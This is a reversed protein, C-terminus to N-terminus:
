AARVNGAVADTLDGDKKILGSASDHAQTYRGVMQQLTTQGQSSDASLNESKGQADELWTDIAGRSVTWPQGGGPKTIDKDLINVGIAKLANVLRESDAASTGLPGTTANDAPTGDDKTLRRYKRVEASLDTIKKIEHTIDALRDKVLALADGLVFGLKGQMASLDSLVDGTNTNNFWEKLSPVIKEPDV